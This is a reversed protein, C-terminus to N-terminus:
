DAAGGELGLKGSRMLADIDTLIVMRGLGSSMACGIGLICSAILSSEVESAPQNSEAGLALADSVTNVVAGILRGHVKLAIVLAFQADVVTGCALKLRLDVIPVIVGRLNVLGQVPYSSDGIRIPAESSHIEQVRLLDNGYDEGGLRGSFLESSDYGAAWVPMAADDSTGTATTFEAATRPDLVTNM